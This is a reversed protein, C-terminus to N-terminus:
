PQLCVNAEFSLALWGTSIDRQYDLGIRRRGGSGHGVDISVERDAVESGSHFITAVHRARCHHSAVTARERLTEEIEPGEVGLRLRASASLCPCPGPDIFLHPIDRQGQRTVVCGPENGLLACGSGGDPGLRAVALLGRESRRLGM